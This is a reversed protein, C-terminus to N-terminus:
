SRARYVTFRRVVAVSAIAGVLVPVFMLGAMFGVNRLDVCTIYECVLYVLM